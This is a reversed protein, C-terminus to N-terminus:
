GSGNAWRCTRYTVLSLGTASTAAQASGQLSSRPVGGAVTWLVGAGAWVMCELVGHHSPNAPSQDTKDTM